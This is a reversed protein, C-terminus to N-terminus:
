NGEAAFRAYRRTVIELEHRQSTTLPRRLALDVEGSRGPTTRWTGAIQGDIAVAHMFGVIRGNKVITTPDHPVVFRDRYAVLYEDYIPLLQVRRRRRARPTAPAEGVTFYMRADVTRASARAIEAGRVADPTTLGSWWVFDRITAPGHSQFYRAALQGLSEDRDFQRRRRARGGALAYTFQREWRPGSCIVGELEAHMAIHAMRMPTVTIRSRRLAQALEARTLSASDANGLAGEILATARALTRADLELRRNYPAMRLHVRPATLAQMWFLDDAAV